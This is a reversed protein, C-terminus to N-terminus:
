QAHVAIAFRNSHVHLNQVLEFLIALKTYIEFLIALKTCIEFLIAIKYLNRVFNRPPARTGGPGLLAAAAPGTRCAGRM